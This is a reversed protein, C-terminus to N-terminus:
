TSLVNRARWTNVTSRMLMWAVLGGWIGAIGLQFGQVGLGLPVLVLLYAFAAWGLFRYDGAGILVGDLAYAIGAPILLLGGLIALAATARSIVAADATFARPLLPATALVLVALTGACWMTLRVVQRSTDAAAAVDCQGLEEAVLTQAPIALADLALAILTLVSLAIQHAALTPEDTRSAISTAGILVVLMSASRLLLHRGASVLPRMQARNPWRITAPRVHRGIVVAFVIASLIQAVVTSWASGAVGFGFGFVLIVELVANLANSALLIFMPTRYDSVGRQLGQASLVFIVAPLGIASIRLYTVAYGLVDPSGGLVHALWSAGAAILLAIPVAVIAGLWIAQVGADAAGAPDGAGVRRAVRETTGYILFTCANVVLSLVTASLALGGLQATGLRGVIATDVLVYL